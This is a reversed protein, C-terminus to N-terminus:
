AQHLAMQALDHARRNQRDNQWTPIVLPFPAAADVLREYLDAYHKVYGKNLADIVLKSDSILQVNQGALGRDAMAQLGTIAALFEAEHNSMLQGRPLPVSIEIPQDAGVIMIGLGVTGPNGKVAADTYLKFM